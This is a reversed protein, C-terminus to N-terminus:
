QGRLVDLKEAVEGLAVGEDSTWEPWGEKDFWELLSALAEAQRASLPLRIPTAM